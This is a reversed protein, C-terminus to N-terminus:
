HEDKILKLKNLKASLYVLRDSISDEAQEKKRITDTIIKELTILTDDMKNNFEFSFKRFSEQIKYNIDYNIRGTSMDINRKFSEKISKIIKKRFVQL